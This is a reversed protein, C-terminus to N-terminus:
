PTPEGWAYGAGKVSVIIRPHAPDREVKKRLVVIAMDVARTQLDGRQGFVQELIEARSVARGRQRHLWRLLGVERPTLATAVGDRKVVLRAFDLVAGDVDIHETTSAPARRGLARVRALLERASFPKTVYDDAGEGLGRVKDDESGRATLMMIPMGPRAARLRRCVDMGDLRPLMLDLVVLDWPEAVGTAAGTAGDGVATVEHGDGQLLDVLGERLGAEDEVVLIRVGGTHWRM